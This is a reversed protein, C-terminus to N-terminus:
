IPTYTRREQYYFEHILELNRSFVKSALSPKYDELKSLSPLGSLLIKFGYVGVTFLILIFVIWVSTKKSM